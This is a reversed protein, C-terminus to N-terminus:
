ERRPMPIIPGNPLSSLLTWWTWAFKIKHQRGYANYGYSPYWYRRPFNNSTRSGSLALNRHRFSRCAQRRHVPDKRAYFYEAICNGLHIINQIAAKRTNSILGLPYVQNDGVFQQLALGLQHVNNACQIRLARGKAQSVAALLLAALIAIIAIVVLLEVLTFASRKM